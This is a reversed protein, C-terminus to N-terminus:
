KKKAGIKEENEVTLIRAITRKLERIRAPNEIAGGAEVMTRLRSLETRLERLRREREQTSMDRLDKMRSIPM